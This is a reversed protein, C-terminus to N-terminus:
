HAMQIQRHPQRRACGSRPAPVKREDEGGISAIVARIDPDTFAALSIRTFALPVAAGGAASSNDHVAGRGYRHLQRRYRDRDPQRMLLWLLVPKVPPQLRPAPIGPSFGRHWSLPHMPM